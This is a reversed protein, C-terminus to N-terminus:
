ASAAIITKVTVKKTVVKEIRITNVESGELIENIKDSLKNNQVLMKYPIDM